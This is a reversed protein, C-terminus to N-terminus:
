GVVGVRGQLGLRLLQEDLDRVHQTAAWPDLSRRARLVEHLLRVSSHATTTQAAEALKATAEPIERKQILAGSFHLLGFTRERSFSTSCADLQKSVIALTADPRDLDRLCFCASDELAYSETIWYLYSPETDGPQRATGRAAALKRLSAERQGDRFRL